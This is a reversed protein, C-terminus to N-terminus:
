RKRDWFYGHMSLRRKVARPIHRERKGLGFGALKFAAEAFVAPLQLHDGSEIVYRAQGLVFRLGEGGTRAGRLLTGAQSISAGIDFNRRFQQILGYDHSHYVRAGAEYKVRHGARLLKACLLVDENLVVGEPFGGVERFVETRVASCVNSFFFAKYGLADVDALDRVRSRAPYNFGRAFRELTGADERPLQRAYTAVAEGSRISSVLNALWHEDAPTADQTVFVLIEGRARRAARNRAGGHDFASRPIVDLVCGAAGAIAATEDTSSSDVVLIESPPIEQSRLRDLLGPLHRAAQLTPIVVSVDVGEDARAESIM